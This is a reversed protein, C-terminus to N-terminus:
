PAVAHDGDGVGVEDAADVLGVGLGDEAGDGLVDSVPGGADGVALDALPEVPDLELGEAEILRRPEDADALLQGELDAVDEVQTREREVAGHRCGLKLERVEAVRISRDLRVRLEGLQAVLPAMASPM